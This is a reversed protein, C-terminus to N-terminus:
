KKRESCMEAPMKARYVKHMKEVCRSGTKSGRKERHSFISVTKAGITDDSEENEEENM